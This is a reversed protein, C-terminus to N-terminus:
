SGERTTTMCMWVIATVIAAHATWALTRIWNTSVLRDHAAADFGAGLVGHAPVSFAATAIWAVLVCALGSWLLPASAAPPRFALLAVSTGLEALMLPGVLPTIRSVHSAQYRTFADTGVSAFLPYHVWQVTWIVGTMAWTSAFNSLLLFIPLPSAPEAM